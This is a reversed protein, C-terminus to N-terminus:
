NSSMDEITSTSASTSDPASTSASASASASASTSTSASTSASPAANPKKQHKYAYVVSYMKIDIPIKDDKLQRAINEIKSGYGSPTGDSPLKVNIACMIEGKTSYILSKSISKIQDCEYLFPDRNLGYLERVANAVKQRNKIKKLEEQAEKIEKEASDVTVDMLVACVVGVADNKKKIKKLIEGIKREERDLNSATTATTATTAIDNLSSCSARIEATPKDNMMRWDGLRRNESEAMNEVMNEVMNEREAMNEDSSSQAIALQSETEIEEDEFEEDELVRPSLTVSDIISEDNDPNSANTTTTTTATTTSPASIEEAIPAPTFLKADYSLASHFQRFHIKQDAQAMTMQCLKCRVISQWTQASSTEVIEHTTAATTTTATTATTTSFPNTLPPPLPIPLSRPLSNETEDESMNVDTIEDGDFADEGINMDQLSAAQNKIFEVVKPEFDEM